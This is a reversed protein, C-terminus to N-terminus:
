HQVDSEFFLYYISVDDEGPILELQHAGYAPNDVIQQPISYQMHVFPKGEQDAIVDRGWSGPELYSRDQRIYIRPRHGLEFGPLIWVSKGRYIVRIHNNLGGISDSYAVLYKGVKWNGNLYVKDKTRDRSDYYEAFKNWMASDSNAINGPAYGLTLMPTAPYIKAEDSDWPKLPKMVLPLIIGPNLRKLEDQIAEEVDGYVKLGEKQAAVRGGPQILIFSPLGKIGYLDYIERDMDLGVPVKLGVQSVVEIANYPLKSPPFFPCHMCVVKLGDASYRRDWEKAYRLTNINSVLGGDYFVLLVPDASLDSLSISDANICNYITFDPATEIGSRVQTPASLAACVALAALAYTAVQTRKM